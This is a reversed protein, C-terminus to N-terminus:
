KIIHKITDGKQIPDAKKPTIKQINEKTKVYEDILKAAGLLLMIIVLIVAIIPNSKLYSIIGDYTFEFKKTSLYVNNLINEKISHIYELDTMVVDQFDKIKEALTRDPKYPFAINLFVNTVSDDDFLQKILVVFSNRWAGHLDCVSKYDVETQIKSINNLLVRGSSLQKNLLTIAKNKSRILEPM